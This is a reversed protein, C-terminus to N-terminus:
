TGKPQWRLGCGGMVVTTAPFMRGLGGRTVLEYSASVSVFISCYFAVPAAEQWMNDSSTM